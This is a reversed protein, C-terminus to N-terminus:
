NYHITNLKCWRSVTSLSSTGGCNETTQSRSKASTACTDCVGILLSSTDRCTNRRASRSIVNMVSTDYVGTSLSSTDRCHIIGLSPCRVSKASTDTRLSFTHRCPINGLSRSGVSKACTDCVGTLLSPIDICAQRGHSHRAVSMVSSCVVRMRWGACLLMFLCVRMVYVFMYMCYESLTEEVSVKVRTANHVSAGDDVAVLKWQCCKNSPLLCLLLFVCVTSRRRHATESEGVVPSASPTDEEEEHPASLSGSVRDDPQSSPSFHLFM